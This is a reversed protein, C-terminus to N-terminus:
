LGLRIRQSLATSTAVARYADILALDLSKKLILYGKERWHRLADKLDYGLDASPLVDVYTDIDADPRDIWPLNEEAFGDM